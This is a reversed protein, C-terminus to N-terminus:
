HDSPLRNNIEKYLGIGDFVAEYPLSFGQVTYVFSPTGTENFFEYMRSCDPETELIQFVTSDEREYDPYAFDYDPMCPAKATSGFM